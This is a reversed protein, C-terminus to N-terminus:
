KPAYRVGVFVNAGWTAYGKALEYDKNFINNARAELQWDRSLRYNAYLNTLGYGGLSEANAADNYRQGVGRWEIGAKLPGFEKALGLRAEHNARRVLRKGTAEDKADLLDISSSLEFGALTANYGLEIGELKARGTQLPIYAYSPAVAAWQILNDIRNDFYTIFAQESGSDYRLSVERNRAEEPLLNPDGHDGWADIFYLDNLTPAKFATGVSANASLTRTFQYGYGALYTLKNGFQSNRDQRLNAQLRHQDVNATWGLMLAGINRSTVTYTTSSDVKQELFEYGAMLRGVPLKVDNQWLVQDQQTNFRSADRFGISEDKSRAVRLTSTWDDTLRNRSEISVTEETADNGVDAGGGTSNYGGGDYWNRSEAHFFNLRVENRRDFNFGLNGAVSTSRFGDRDADLAPDYDHFSPSGPNFAAYPGKKATVGGTEYQGGRLSYSWAGESGSIGAGVNRTAYTGAGAFAEFQAPGEGRKTFIQIVGGVADAGYLASAPGRLIEIREIQGLPISELAAQGTTASGLRVGDILLIAHNANTGRILLSSTKGPGGNQSVQIGPQQALLDLLTSQGAREIEEHEIVDVSALLESARTAQRTATVVVQGLDKDEGYAQGAFVSAVALAAVSYRKNM